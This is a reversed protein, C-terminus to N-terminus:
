GCLREARATFGKALSRIVNSLTLLEADLDARKLRKLM